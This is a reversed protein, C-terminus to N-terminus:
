RYNSAGWDFRRRGDKKREQVVEGSVFVNPVGCYLQDIFAQLELENDRVIPADVNEVHWHGVDM